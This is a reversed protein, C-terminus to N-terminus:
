HRIDNLLMKTSEGAGVILIKKKQVNPSKQAYYKAYLLILRIVVRYGVVLFVQFLCAVPLRRVPLVLNPEVIHDYCFCLLCSVTASLISVLTLRFYEKSSARTWLYRYIKFINFFLTFCIISIIISYAFNGFYPSDTLVLAFVIFSLLICAIDAIWYLFKMNSVILRKM